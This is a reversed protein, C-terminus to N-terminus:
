LTRTEISLQTLTNWLNEKKIVIIKGQGVLLLDNIVLTSEASSLLEDSENTLEAEGTLLCHNTLFQIKGTSLTNKLFYIKSM